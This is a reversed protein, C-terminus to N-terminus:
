VTVNKIIGDIYGRIKYFNVPNNMRIQITGHPLFNAPRRHKSASSVQSYAKFHETPIKTIESWFKISEVANLNPYIQVHPRLESPKIELIEKIFRLFVKVMEPSSNSFETRHHPNPGKRARLSGEGWYLAAGILTIDRRSLKGVANTHKKLVLANREKTAISRAKSWRLVNKEAQAKKADIIKQIKPSLPLDRFWLSLTSRSIGPIEKQVERYSKGLGRLAIAAKKERERWRYM